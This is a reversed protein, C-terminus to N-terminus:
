ANIVYEGTACDLSLDFPYEVGIEASIEKLEDLITSSLPVGSRRREQEHIYEPVGPYLGPKDSNTHCAEIAALFSEVRSEFVSRGVFREPDVVIFCHGIGQDYRRDAGDQSTTGEPGTAGGSLVGCLVDILMALGFGKHVGLEPRSGLFQLFAEGRFYADPDTVPSGSADALWGQPISEGSARRQRIQGASVVATSMDILFPARNGSPVAAALVNTGLIPKTGGPVPLIAQAGLNTFSLGIYGEKAAQLAYFGMCGCHASERVTVTATGYMKCLQIAENMGFGAAVYGLANKGDVVAAAASRQVVEPIAEAHITRDRLQSYYIRKFNSAGHTDIGRLDAYLIGDAGANAHEPSLGLKRFVSAYFARLRVVPVLQKSYM